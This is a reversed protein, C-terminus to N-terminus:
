SPELIVVVKKVRVVVGLVVLVDLETINEIGVNCDLVVVLM